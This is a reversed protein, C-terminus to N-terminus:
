LMGWEGLLWECLSMDYADFRKYGTFGSKRTEYFNKVVTALEANFDDVADISNLAFNRATMDYNVTDKLINIYIQWAAEKEGLGHLAEAALVRVPASKDNGAEKLAHIAPRGQEELALLGTVGWYRMASNEHSLYGTFTDRDEPGGLVALDSARILEEFPCSDSRVYDYLSQDPALTAYETEPIVGADRVEMRWRDMARRMRKLVKRYAPDGALNNTEWPDNETDYLEEAPRPLFALSQVSDTKGKRYAESWSRASPANFLYAVHQLTIRNPMYNRIYRYQRDRVARVLDYREDMRQRTMFTYKPDRTKQRGLFANGQLYDPVTIGAISLLTPVLDVFNVLREVKQGPSGAPYLYSYKEPIRIVLPIQTGTEYVFRKSRALVGGNDGYYFVITNEALGSEELEQLKEGVWADMDEIRDYYQAWDHRMEPTDPCYPPLLVEEPRHRLEDSPTSRHISSEHSTMCNFVAFFPKGDPRNKYHAKYSSEDWEKEFRPDSTNYDTKANNTCYYGAGRLYEVYGRVTGSTPFTSRMHENGNSAAYVGTLITNRAPACVPCTAYAHTYQFGQSALRDINPTTALGNGYCHTFWASNDESVLWLINPSQSQIKQAYGAVPLASLIALGALSKTGSGRYVKRFLREHHRISFTQKLKM